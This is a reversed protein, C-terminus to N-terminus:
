GCVRPPPPPPVKKQTSRTPRLETILEERQTTRTDVLVRVSNHDRLMLMLAVEARASAAVDDGGPVAQAAFNARYVAFKEGLAGGDCSATFWEGETITRDRPLMLSDRFNPLPYFPRTPHCYENVVHAPLLRQARGVQQIWATNGETYKKGNYLDITTKYAQILVNLNAHVGHIKAWSGTEFGQAQLQAEETPLYKKIMMWMHWDLAWVAYQFGTINTFTRKSLDTVDGPVLALAPNSQLMTEAKGQEGEAVLKLFEKLDSAKVKPSPKAIPNFQTLMAPESFNKQEPPKPKPVFAVVPPVAQTNNIPTHSVRVAPQPAAPSLLPRLETILGERQAARTSALLQISERDGRPSASAICMVLAVGYGGDGRYYAFKEGLKGDSYSATFWEGEDITRSRPLTLADKFNPLPYFPRVPHCYENVVHVPLLWQAGGVQQRWAIDGEASKLAKHLDIAAQLAKVLNQLLHQAHVGHQRVWAGTEFGQGQERAIEDPLYKRIMTWMHWDLAWVAYQFGTINSFTRKSLDTVDESLFALVPDSKLMVEAKDQEGEVVLRLFTNLDSTNMKSSPKAAQNGQPLVGLEASTKQESPNPKLVFAGVPSVGQPNNIIPVPSVGIAPQLSSSVMRMSPPPSFMRMLEKTLGERQATRVNVLVCISRYDGVVTLDVDKMYPGAVRGIANMVMGWGGANGADKRECARGRAQSGRYIAFKDGLHGGNYMATFWEGEEITRSRPLSLASKFNPTPYFPRKPHCYENVFHAPLLLQAGGIQKAWATNGEDWKSANYLNITTQYAQILINLNVYIGHHKVWVGTEFEQAQLRAKEIPLYKKIMTWMHWDLAWVAYQFGTINTFTRKSLDTVDGPVLALVPNSKLMAEAKDQEGEVVRRLFEKLDRVNVHPVARAAPNFQNLMVAPNNQEPSYPKQVCDPLAVQPNNLNSLESNFDGQYAATSSRPNVPLPLFQAFNTKDSKLYTVVTDADPRKGPSAEWCAAILSALKAPCDKPIDEREGKSVWSPILSPNSADAFPIKRSVLEWLTVGLSYIDSKQTYIARREFLEPAMWAITGVADESTQNAMSQSKTEIKVKSLGFDTLKARYSQDLLVNLSKIDRHVIHEQHLFALGCAMDIAIRVRITWDLPQKINKLVSYLSGNPMYEMVICHRPNLCYGYFQVIHPSRLRAMVQSETDFEENAEASIADSLLQKIAVDTHKRWTGQHVVGFGGRGLERGFNLERYDIQYSVSFGERAEKREISPKNGFLAEATSSM